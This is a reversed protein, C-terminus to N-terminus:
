HGLTPGDRKVGQQKGLELQRSRKKATKSFDMESAHETVQIQQEIWLKHNLNLDLLDHLPAYRLMGNPEAFLLLGGSGTKKDGQLSRVHLLYDNIQQGTHTSRQLAIDQALRQVFDQLNASTQRADESFADLYPLTLLGMSTDTAKSEVYWHVERSVTQLGHAGVVESIALHKDREKTLSAGHAKFELLRVVGTFNLFVDALLTDAPTQQLLNISGALKQNGQEHRLSFGLAFLFNGITINEYLKM